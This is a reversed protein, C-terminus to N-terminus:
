RSARLGARATVANSLDSLDGAVIAERQGPQDLSVRREAVLVFAAAAM